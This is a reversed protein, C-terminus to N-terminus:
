ALRHVAVSEVNPREGGAVSAAHLHKLRADGTEYEGFRGGVGEGAPSSCEDFGFVVDGRRPCRPFLNGQCFNEGRSNSQLNPGLILVSPSLVPPSMVTRTAEGDCVFHSPRKMPRALDIPSHLLSWSRLTPQMM